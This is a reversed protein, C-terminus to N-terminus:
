VPKMQTKGARKVVGNYLAADPKCAIQAFLDGTRDDRVVEGPKRTTTSAAARRKVLERLEVVLAPSDKRTLLAKAQRWIQQLAEHGQTASFLRLTLRDAM